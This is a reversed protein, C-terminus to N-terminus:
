QNERKETKVHGKIRLKILGKPQKGKETKSEKQTRQKPWM